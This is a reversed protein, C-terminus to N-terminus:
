PGLKVYSSPIYGEEGSARLVRMWGDGKDEEMISLLEGETISITGESNGACLCVCTLSLLSLHCRNIFLYLTFIVIYRWLHVSGRLPWCPKRHRWVRRWIRHLHQSVPWSSCCQFYVFWSMYNWWHKRSCRNVNKFITPCKPFYMYKSEERSNSSIGSEYRYFYTLCGATPQGTPYRLMLVQFLPFCSALLFLLINYPSNPTLYNRDCHSGPTEGPQM